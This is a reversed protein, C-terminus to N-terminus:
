IYLSFGFTVWSFHRQIFAIGLAFSNRIVILLGNKNTGTMMRQKNGPAGLNIITGVIYTIIMPLSRLFMDYTQDGFVRQYACFCAYFLIVFLLGGFVTVNNVGAALFGLLSIFVTAIVNKKKDKPNWAHNLMLAIFLVFLSHGFTYHVASNYWTFAEAKGDVGQITYTVLLLYTCWKVAKSSSYIKNFVVNILCYYSFLISLIMITGGLHYLKIGFVAPELSM